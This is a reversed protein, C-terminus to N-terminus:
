QDVNESKFLFLDPKFSYLWLIYDILWDILHVVSLLRKLDVPEAHVVWNLM